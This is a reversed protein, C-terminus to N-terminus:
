GDNVGFLLSGDKEVQMQFSSDENKVNSGVTCFDLRKGNVLWSRQQNTLISKIQEGGLNVIKRLNEKM